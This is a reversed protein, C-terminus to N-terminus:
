KATPGPSDSPTTEKRARAALAHVLDGPVVPKTFHLNFGCQAVRERTRDDLRGTLAILLPGRPNGRMARIRAAVECGDMGPMTLDLIMADPALETAADLATAGDYCVHAVAGCIALLDSMSDAGDRNDDVVLVRLGNLPPFPAGGRMPSMLPRESNM